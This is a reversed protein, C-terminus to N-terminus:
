QPDPGVACCLAHQGGAGVGAIRRSTLQKGQLEVPEGEDEEAGTTLQLNEGFGWGYCRGDEALAFSVASGAAVAAIPPLGPVPVPSHAEAGAAPVGLQGTDGRGLTAVGGDAGLAVAHHQGFAIDRLDAFGASRAPAHVLLGGGPLGLQNYNNLGFAFVEGTATLVASSWGGAAVRVVGAKEMAKSEVRRPVLFREVTEATTRRGAYAEAHAATEKRARYGERHCRNPPIRGLQGSDSTGMSHVEAVGTKPNATRILVHEAGSAIQAAAYGSAPDVPFVRTFRRGAASDVGFGFPGGADRFMGAVLVQGCSSLAATHSDGASLQVITLGDLGLVPSARAAVADEDLGDLAAAEAKTDRGLAFEDNCGWAYVAGDATLAASHMGGAVVQKVDLGELGGKVKTPKKRESVDDPSYGLQGTMNQGWTLAYGMNEPAATRAAKAPAGGGDEGSM